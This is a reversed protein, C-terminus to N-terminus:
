GTPTTTFSATSSAFAYPEAADPRKTLPTSPAILAARPLQACEMACDSGRQPAVRYGQRPAKRRGARPRPIGDPGPVSALQAIQYVAQCRREPVAPLSEAVRRRTRVCFLQLHPSGTAVTKSRTRLIM